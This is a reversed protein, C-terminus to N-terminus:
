FNYYPNQVLAKNRELETKYIPMYWGLPNSLKTALVRKQTSPVNLVIIEILKSKRAFDNRRGMRLLDFWRKGEFALELAREELIADEFANPSDALNLLPVDARDRIENLLTLAEPFRNLQSLAEAKMLLLDAYRYVIWNCSNAETGSRVTEGDPFRGVYKWIIYETESYKKISSKEGRYIERAFKVGFMQLARESPDYNYSYRQTMGYLHNRQSMGDDFFFEFINEVSVQETIPYYNEFWSSSKQLRYKNLMIINNVHQICSAYNFQWLAIDALLAEISAKTARSKVERLTAYGDITAWSTAQQLDEVMRNLVEDGDTKPLYFDADDSTTPELVLPVDKFIRVLYFYALSRLFYAESLYGKLQYDTFTNDKEKVVPAFKIVENCYNIVQYFREWNCLYNAPYINSEMVKKEDLSTNNDPKVLDGRIEGYLFMLNDMQAFSEYAGMLVAQVDEKTKWFEERILGEPPILAMWDNCSFQVSIALIILFVKAKIKIM